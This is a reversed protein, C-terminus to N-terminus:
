LESPPAVIGTYLDTILPADEPDPVFGTGDSKSKVVTYVDDPADPDRFRIRSEQTKKTGSGRTAPLVRAGFTGMELLPLIFEPSDMELFENMEHFKLRSFVDFSMLVNSDGTKETIYNTTIEEIIEKVKRAVTKRRTTPRDGKYGETLEGSLDLAMSRAQNDSNPYVGTGGENYDLKTKVFKTNVDNSYKPDFSPTYSIERYINGSVDLSTIKSRTKHPNYKINDTPFIVLYWPIQRTYIPYDKRLIDNDFVIDEQELYFGRSGDDDLAYDFLLDDYELPLVRYNLKYKILNDINVIGNLLTYRVKTKKILDSKDSITTAVDTPDIQYVYYDSSRIGSSASTDYTFESGTTYDSFASLKWNPDGDLLQLAKYRIHDPILYAHDKENNLLLPETGTDTEVILHDGDMVEYSQTVVGASTEITIFGDDSPYLKDVIGSETSVYVHSDVDSFITKWLPVLNKGTGEYKNPDLPMKYNNILALATVENAKKDSSREINPLELDRTSRELQRFYDLSLDDLSNDFIRARVISAIDNDTFYEGTPKRIGKATKVFNDTLSKIINRNSLDKLRSDDWDNSTEGLTNYYDISDHISNKFISRNLNRNRTTKNSTRPSTITISVAKDTLGEPFYKDVVSTIDKNGELKIDKQNRVRGLQSKPTPDQKLADLDSKTIKGTPLKNLMEQFYQRPNIM